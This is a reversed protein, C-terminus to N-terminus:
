VTAYGAGVRIAASAAMCVAGSLGRSGGVVLVEGSDFKTSNPLRQPALALVGDRIVGGAPQSPADPPIGIDAVRVQGSKAKGPVIWHGLNAAAFSAAVEAEVAVGEAEGRAADVGASIDVAVVPAGGSNRA